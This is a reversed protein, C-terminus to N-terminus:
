GSATLRQTLNDRSGRPARAVRGARRRARRHNGLANTRSRAGMRRQSWGRASALGACSRGVPSGPRWAGGRRGACRCVAPGRDLLCASTLCGTRSSHRARALARGRREGHPRYVGIISLLLALGAFTATVQTAFRTVARQAELTEAVRSVRDMALNPAATRLRNTLASLIARPDRDTRVLLYGGGISVQDIPVYLAPRDPEGAPTVDGVVGVISTPADISPRTLRLGVAARGGLLERVFATNVIAVRPAQETDAATFARGSVVPIAATEFYSPSIPRLTAPSSLAEAEGLVQVPARLGIVQTPLRMSVAVGVM